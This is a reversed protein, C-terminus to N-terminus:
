VPELPDFVEIVNIGFEIWLHKKNRRYLATITAKSKVDTVVLGKEPHLYVFDAIYSGVKIDQVHLEYKVQRRLDRIVGKAQQELLFLWRAAEKKSAHTIGDATQTRIANYKGRKARKIVKRKM